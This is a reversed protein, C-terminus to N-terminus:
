DSWKLVPIPLAPQRRSRPLLKKQRSPRNLWPRNRSPKPPDDSGGTLLGILTVLVVAGGAVAGMFPKKKYIPVQKPAVTESMVRPLVRIIGASKFGYLTRCIDFENNGTRQCIARVSTNGDILSLIVLDERSLQFKEPDPEEELALVTDLSPIVKRIRGWEDIRRAGEMILNFAGLSITLDMAAGPPMEGDMFQFEGDFWQFLDYVIEKSQTIAAELLINNTVFNGQQLIREISNKGSRARIRIREADEVTINGNRLLINLLSEKRTSSTAYIINGEQFYVHADDIGRNVRLTGTKAGGSLLQLVDPLGITSLNGSIGM